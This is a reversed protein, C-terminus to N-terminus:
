GSITEVPLMIKAVRYQVFISFITNTLWYLVLGSPLSYFIIGFVVPMFLMMKQQQETQPDTKARKFTSMKQQVVMAGIMLLPLLNLYEGIIPLKMPLKAISDPMSLDKIWLFDAGKLRFSRILSLYLSVFIPMQLFMPLCGGLPNVKYQRYLDMTAKQLKHPNDKHMERIKSIEPQIIQMQRMSRFNKMTLPFLVLGLSLTLAIIAVGYNHTIKYLFELARLLFKCIFDLKGFYITDEMKFTSLYEYDNPGAYLLYRHSISSNAPIIFNDVKLGCTLTKEGLDSIISSNVPYQPKLAIEYYTNRLAVWEVIGNKQIWEGAANKFVKQDEWVVTGDIKSEIGVFRKDMDSSFIINSAGIIGYSLNKSQNSNNSFVIELEIGYKSNSFSITKQMEVENGVNASFVVNKESVSVVQYNLFSIKQSNIEFFLALPAFEVKSQELLLFEKGKVPLAEEKFVIKSISASKPSVNLVIGNNSLIIDHNQQTASQKQPIVESKAAFQIESLPEQPNKPPTKQFVENKQLRGNEQHFNQAVIAQYVLLVALSLVIATLTRKEM